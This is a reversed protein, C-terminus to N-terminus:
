RAPPELSARREILHELERDLARLLQGRHPGQLFFHNGPFVRRVFSATTHNAWGDLEDPSVIPDDIGGYATIPCDVTAGPPHEYTECVALDARLLPLRPRLFGTDECEPPASGLERVIKILRASPLQHTQEQGYMSPPRSGSAFLHLPTPLGRDALARATEFAVLAGMSHGFFAFQREALLPEIATVVSKILPEIRTFAPEHKRVGRGPKLVM